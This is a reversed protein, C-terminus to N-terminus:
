EGSKSQRSRKARAGAASPEVEAIQEMRDSGGASTRHESKHRKTHRSSSSHKASLGRKTREAGTGTGSKSQRKVTTEVQPTTLQRREQNQLITISEIEVHYVMDNDDVSKIPMAHVRDVVDFGSIVKAFCPDAEEPMDYQLQGNPGHVEDNDETSIYWDPGGPRGPIGLTYQVHPQNEDYEQFAVHLPQHKEVFNKIHRNGTDASQPDAQIVHAANRVFSSDNWLGLSVQSLWYHITHPTYELSGMEVVFTGSKTDGPSSEPFQQSILCTYQIPHIDSV